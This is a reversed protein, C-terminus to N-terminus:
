RELINLGLRLRLCNFQLEKRAIQDGIRGEEKRKGVGGM